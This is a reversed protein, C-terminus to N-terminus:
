AWELARGRQPTMFKKLIYCQTPIWSWVFFISSPLNRKERGPWYQLEAELALTSTPIERRTGAGKGGEGDM